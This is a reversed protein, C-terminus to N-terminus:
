LEPNITGNDIYFVVTQAVYQQTKTDQATIYYAGSAMDPNIPVKASGSGKVLSLNPYTQERSTNNVFILRTKPPMNAYQITVNQKTQSVYNLRPAPTGALHFVVTQAIYKQDAFRQALLYYDGAPMGTVPVLLTSTGRVFGVEPNIREGSTNNVFVVQTNAPMNVYKVKVNQTTQSIYNLRSSAASAFAALGIVAAIAVGIGIKGTFITKSM